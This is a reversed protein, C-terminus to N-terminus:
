ITFIQPKTPWVRDKSCVRKGEEGEGEEEEKEEGEGEGEKEGEEKEGKTDGGEGEEEEGEGEEEEEGAEDRKKGEEEEEKAMKRLKLATCISVKCHIQCVPWLKSVRERFWGVLWRERCNKNLFM